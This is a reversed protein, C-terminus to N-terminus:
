ESQTVEVIADQEVTKAHAKEIEQSGYLCACVIIAIINFWLLPHKKLYYGFCDDEAQTYNTNGIKM